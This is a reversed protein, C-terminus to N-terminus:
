EGAKFAPVVEGNPYKEALYSAVKESQLAKMLIPVWEKAADAERVAVINAYLSESGELLLADKKPNIGASLAFNGNILAIDVDQLVRPISAAELEKFKLNKPNETIDSVSSLASGGDKLSILHAAQLLLLARGLNTPDNPVAILAGDKLDDIRKLKAAYIGMPEVHVAGVSTLKYGLNDMSNQLFPLHQFFNADIEGADLAANPTVYDTFEKVELTYGAAKIDDKILSLIEAHPVPSSGVTIKKEEAVKKSCSLALFSVLILLYKKM